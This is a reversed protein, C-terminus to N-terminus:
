YLSNEIKKLTELASSVQSVIRLEEIEDVVDKIKDEILVFYDEVENVEFYEKGEIEHKELSTRSIM